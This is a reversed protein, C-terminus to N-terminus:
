YHFHVFDTKISNEHVIIIKIKKSIEEAIFKLIEGTFQSNQKIGEQGM